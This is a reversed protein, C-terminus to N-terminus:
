NNEVVNKNMDYPENDRNTVFLDTVKGNSLNLNLWIKIGQEESGFRVKYLHLIRNVIPPSDFGRFKPAKFYEEAFKIEKARPPMLVGAIDAKNQVARSGAICGADMYEQTGINANCQTFTMIATDTETAIDKLTSSITALVMDGRTSIGSSKSIESSISSQESIYDFVVYECGKNLRYDKIYMSILSVTFNPMVVIHINSRDLIEIAHDVREEEGEKYKGNLIHNCPVGSITSVFKPTCEYSANMEYELFLGGSAEYSKNKVFKGKDFDWLEDCCIGCLTSIGITSKGSGSPMSFISLQGKIFGRTATNCYKSFMSAGYMPTQMFEDKIDKFWSGLKVEEISSNKSFKKRVALQSCEFSKIIDDITYKDLNVMNDEDKRDMDWFESIDFKSNQYERLCSFKRVTNYYSEFNGVDALRQVTDVYKEGDNDLFINYQAEYPQIFLDIDIFSASKIGRKSLNHLTAYILKHFQTQFDEKCLSYKESNALSTDKILCGLLRDASIHDYIM